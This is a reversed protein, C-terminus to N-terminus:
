SIEFSDLLLKVYFGLFEISRPVKLICITYHLSTVHSSMSIFLQTCRAPLFSKVFPSSLHSLLFHIFTHNSHSIFKSIILCHNKFFLNVFFIKKKILAFSARPGNIRQSKIIFKYLNMLTM